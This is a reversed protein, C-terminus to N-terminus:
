PRTFYWTVGRLVALVAVIVALMTFINSKPADPQTDFM